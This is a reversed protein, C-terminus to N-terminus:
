KTTIRLIRQSNDIEIKGLLQLVRTTQGNTLNITTKPKLM